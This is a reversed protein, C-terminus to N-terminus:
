WDGGMARYLGILNTNLAQQSDIMANTAALWLQQALIVQSYDALGAQFQDLILDLNRKDFETQKTLYELRDEENFYTALAIEVEQFAGIVTKEYTLYAQSTIFKQIDVSAWRKGFDFVPWTVLGGIGWIRSRSKFLENFRDSSFGINAGQLPNAAFSSSSGILSVSPYLEAVAVGILETQAALRREAAAVDPRRRLLESPLIEPIQGSAIPIPRKISFDEVLTEPLRGLLIALSYINIKLNTEFIKLAAQSSELVALATVVEEENTLGAEFRETSLAALGENFQVLEKALAVKTQYYCILVYLNAVESLVVIKVGRMDEISAEWVDYASDANRRLKGFLDIEWIADLGIQYFDQIPSLTTAATSAPTVAATGGFVSHTFSRSVRYRTAQFDSEFDPLISAFQVWYNARAQFVAELAIRLDFNNELTEEMLQDLFPDAYVEQWWHCLDEETIPVSREPQSEVLAEPLPADPMTYNPGVKCGYISFVLVLFPLWKM